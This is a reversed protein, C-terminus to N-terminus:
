NVEPVVLSSTKDTRLASSFGMALGGDAIAM